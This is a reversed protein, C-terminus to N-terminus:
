TRFTNIKARRKAEAIRQQVEAANDLEARRHLEQTYEDPSPSLDIYPYVSMPPASPPDPRRKEDRRKKDMRHREAPSAILLELKRKKRRPKQPLGALWLDLRERQRLASLYRTGQEARLLADRLLRVLRRTDRDSTPLWNDGCLVRALFEIDSMTRTSLSKVTFPSDNHPWAAIVSGGICFSLRNRKWRFHARPSRKTATIM